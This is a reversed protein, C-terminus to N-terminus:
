PGRKVKARTAQLAVVELEDLAGEKNGVKKKQNRHHANDDCLAVEM